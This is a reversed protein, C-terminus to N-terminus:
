RRRMRDRMAVIRDLTLAPQGVSIQAVNVGDHTISTIRHARVPEDTTLALTSGAEIQGPPVMQQTTVDLVPSTVTITGAPRRVAVQSLWQEGVRNVTDQDGLATGLDVPKPEHVGRLDAIDPYLNPDADFSTSRPRGKGDEWRITVRNCLEDREGDLDVEARDADIIYRPTSEWQQWSLSALGTSTSRKGIRWRHDAHIMLMDDMVEGPSVPDRYDARRFAWTGEAVHVDNPDVAETLCRGVLDDIIQHARVQTLATLDVAPYTNAGWRTVRQGMVTVQSAAWWVDDRAVKVGATDMFETVLVLYNETNTRATSAPGPAPWSTTNARRLVLEVAGSWWENYFRNGWFQDGLYARTRLLSPEVGTGPHRQTGASSNFVLGGLHMDSGLHGMYAMRGGTGPYLPQGERIGIQICDWPPDVPRAGTSTDWSPQSRYRITEREWESLDQVLYPLSYYRGYVDDVNGVCRVVASDGMPSRAIGNRGIAGTWLVDGSAPDSLIVRCDETLVATTAPDLVTFDATMCGRQDDVWQAGEVVPTHHRVWGGSGRQPVAISVIPEM